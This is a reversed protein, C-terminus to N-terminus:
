ERLAKVPDTSIARVAPLLCALLAVALLLALAGLYSAPDLARVGYVMAALFRSSLVALTLGGLVGGIALKSGKILIESLIQGPRAGLAVRVGIEKTRQSVMYAVVGYLGVAALLLAMASFLSVVLAQFREKELAGRVAERFSRLAYVPRSPELGLVAARVSQAVGVPDGATRVLIDSDPWFRLYGCAYIVPSAESGAGDEKVDAVVGVIRPTGDGIPGGEVSRGLPDRGALYRDAFSRNVLLEFAERPDPSMRCSRGALLPVGLTQFYGDSVIRWGAFQLNGDAPAEGTIRFERPWAPNVAPLGSSMAVSLVGPQNALVALMREHRSVTSAPSEAFSAGVRFTLVQEAAFGLPTAQLTALSRLLLGATILLVMALALQTGVLIQPLRQSGGVVGRSGRIAARAADRRFTLLGPAASFLVAAAVSVAMAFGLIRWDVALESVRPIGTLKARLLDVALFSAGFGLTGGGAAFLLGEALFQRGIEGRSAGLALRTAIETGRSSLKALMMCAVNACAILLLFSVSAFLMWLTLRVSGTLEEHLPRVSASWGADTNPYKRALDAQVAVLDAEAREAKVGTRLRGVAHYFRAERLALVQPTTRDAVWIETDASPYQFAAPMVGIIIYRGASLTLTQGLVAASASFRQRWFADSIVAVAPGGFREEDPHFTRGMAAETRLVEFFRPSVFAAPLRAADAGSTDTLVDMRSGALTEFSQNLEQWDALRGPSVPTRALSDSPKTEFVAVLRESEPYPLPRLLVSDVLSFVTTTAGIGLGLTAVVIAAFGPRRVMTRGGLRLDRVWAEIRPWGWVDRAEELHRTTNGFARQAARLDGSDAAKMEIHARMEERLEADIANRRFLLQLKRLWERM